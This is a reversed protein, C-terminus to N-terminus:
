FHAAFCEVLRDVLRKQLKQRRLVQAADITLLLRQLALQQSQPLAGTELRLLEDQSYRQPRSLVSAQVM